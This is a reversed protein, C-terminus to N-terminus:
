NRGTHASYFPFVGVHVAIPATYASQAAFAAQNGAVQAQPRAVPAGGQDAAQM